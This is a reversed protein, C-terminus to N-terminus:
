CSDEGQKRRQNRKQREIKLWEVGSEIILSELERGNQIAQKLVPVLENPVSMCRQRGAQRFTFLWALHRQGSACRKCNKRGCSKKIQNLSGKALPWLEKIARRLKDGGDQADSM